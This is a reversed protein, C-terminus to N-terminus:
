QMTWVTDANPAEVTTSYGNLIGFGPTLHNHPFKSFKAVGHLKHSVSVLPVVLEMVLPGPQM